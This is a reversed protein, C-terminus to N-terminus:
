PINLYTEQIEKAISDIYSDGFTSKKAEIHLYEGVQWYMNILNGALYIENNGMYNGKKNTVGSTVCIINTM